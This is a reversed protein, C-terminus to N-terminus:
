DYNFTIEQLEVAGEIRLDPEDDFFTQYIDPQKKEKEDKDEYLYEKENENENENEIIVFEKDNEKENQDSGESTESSPDSKEQEDDSDIPLKTYLNKTNKQKKNTKKEKNSTNKKRWKKMFSCILGGGSNEEFNLKYDPYQRLFEQKALERAFKEDNSIQKKEEQTLEKFPKFKMKSKETKKEKIEEDSVSELSTGLNNVRNNNKTQSQNNIQSQNQSQNQNMSQMQNNNMMNQNFNKPNDGYQQYNSKYRNLAYQQFGTTNNFRPQQRFQQGYYQQQQNRFQQNIRYQQNGRNSNNQPVLDYYSTEPPINILEDITQPASYKNRKFLVAVVQPHHESFMSCIELLQKELQQIKEKDNM